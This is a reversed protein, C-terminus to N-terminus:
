VKTEAKSADNYFVPGLAAILKLEDQTLEEGDYYRQAISGKEPVIWYNGDNGKYVKM